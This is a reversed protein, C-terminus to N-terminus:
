LYTALADEDGLEKLLKQMGALNQRLSLEADTEMRHDLIGIPGSYGSEAVMRLIQADDEGEALPLIKPGNAAMGNLNVCLLHPLMATFAGPMQDLHEHGHHFNYVIGVKERELRQAIEVMTQPQGSWGGHNYLGVKCGLDDFVNALLRVQRTAEEFRTEIDSIASLEDEPLMKWVEIHLENRRIFDLVPRLKPDDRVGQEDPQSSGSLWFATLRIDHARLQRLEEDFTDIDKERWDYALADIGLRQLMEARQQPTRQLADFPVICWALLNNKCFMNM